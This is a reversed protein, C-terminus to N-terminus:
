PWSCFLEDVPGAERSSMGISQRNAWRELWEFGVERLNTRNRVDWVQELFRGSLTIWFRKKRGHDM